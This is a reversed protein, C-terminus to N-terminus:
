STVNNRCYCATICLASRLSVVLMRNSVHHLMCWICTARSDRVDIKVFIWTRYTNCKSDCRLNWVMSAKVNTHRTEIIPHRAAKILREMWDKM